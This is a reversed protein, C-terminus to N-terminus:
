LSARSALLPKNLSFLEAPCEQRNPEMNSGRIMSKLGQM